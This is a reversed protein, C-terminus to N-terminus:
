RNLLYILVGITVVVGGVLVYTKTKDTALKKQVAQQLEPSQNKVQTSYQEQAKIVDYAAWEASLAKAAPCMTMKSLPSNYTGDACKKAYTDVTERSSFTVGGYALRPEFNM